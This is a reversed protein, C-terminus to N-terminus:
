PTPPQRLHDAHGADVVVAAAAVDATEIMVGQRAGSVSLALAAMTDRDELPAIGDILEVGIEAPGNM